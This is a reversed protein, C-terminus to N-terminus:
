VGLSKLVQCFTEYKLRPKVIMSLYKIFIPLNVFGDNKHSKDILYKDIKMAVNQSRGFAQCLNLRQVKEVNMEFTDKDINLRYDNNEFENSKIEDSTHVM